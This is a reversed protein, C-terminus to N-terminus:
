IKRHAKAATKQALRKVVPKQALKDKKDEPKADKKEVPKAAPKEKPKGEPKKAKAEKEKAEKEKAEELGHMVAEKAEKLAEEPIYELVYKKHIEEIKRHYEDEAKKIEANMKQEQMQWLKDFSMNEKGEFGVAKLQSEIENKLAQRLKAESPDGSQASMASCATMMLLSFKM